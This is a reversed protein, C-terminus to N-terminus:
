WYRFLGVAQASPPRGTAIPQFEPASLPEYGDPWPANLRCLLRMHPAANPGNVHEAVIRVDADAYERLEHITTVLYDPVWGVRGGTRSNLLVARPNVPNDPEGILDLHEGAAVKAVAADAGDIHCMGRAFFLTTLGGDATRDPHAFVEIRDTMRRGESRAMVEFPDTDLDLDLRALYDGYDPRRRPMQRYRFVPFLHDSEYIRYLDPLGPLLEFGDLQEAVKLCVFRYSERLDVIRRTLMEVPGILREPRCWAAYLHRETHETM